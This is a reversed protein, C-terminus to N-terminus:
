RKVSDVAVSAATRACSQKLAIGGPDGSPWHVQEIAGADMIETENLDGRDPRASVTVERYFNDAFGPRLEVSVREVPVHAPVRMAALSATARRSIKTTSAVPSFLTQRERSPPVSAGEVLSPATGPWPAGAPTRLRLRLHLIPATTEAMPLVTWRGLRQASLDFIGFTGLSHAPAGAQGGFVKVTGVFNVAHLHLNVESYPRPPMHLDLRLESGERSVNAPALQVDPVPEPGSKGSYRFM